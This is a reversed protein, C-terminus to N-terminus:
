KRNHAAVGRLCCGGGPCCRERSLVEGKVVGGRLCCRGRVTGGSLVWVRSLM